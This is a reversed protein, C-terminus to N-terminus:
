EWNARFDDNSDEFDYQSEIDVLRIPRKLDTRPLEIM